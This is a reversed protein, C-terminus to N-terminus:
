KILDILKERTAKDVKGTVNLPNDADDAHQKQFKVVADYTVYCYLGDIRGDFYLGVMRLAQQLVYVCRSYTTVCTPKKVTTCLCKKSMDGCNYLELALGTLGTDGGTLDEKDIGEGNIVNNPDSISTNTQLPQQYTYTDQVFTMAVQVYNNYVQKPKFSTMRYYGNEIIESLTVIKCITFTRCWDNLVSIVTKDNTYNIEASNIEEGIFIDDTRLYVTVDFSLGADGQFYLHKVASWTSTEFGSHMRTEAVKVDRKVEIGTKVRLPQGNIEFYAKDDTHFSCESRDSPANLVDSKNTTSKSVLDNTLAVHTNKAESLIINIEATTYGSSITTVEDDDDSSSSSSNNSSSM